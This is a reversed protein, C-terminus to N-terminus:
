HMKQEGTHYKQVVHIVLLLPVIAMTQQSPSFLIVQVIQKM